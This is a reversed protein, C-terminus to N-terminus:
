NFILAMIIILILIAIIIGFIIYVTINTSKEQEKKYNSLIEMAKDKDKETNTRTNTVNDNTNNKFKIDKFVRSAEENSVNHTKLLSLLIRDNKVNTKTNLEQLAGSYNDYYYLLGDKGKVIQPKDDIYSALVSDNKASDQGYKKYYDKVINNYSKDMAMNVNNNTNNNVSHNDILKDIKIRRQNYNLTDNKFITNLTNKGNNLNNFTEKIVSSHRFMDILDTKTNPSIQEKIDKPLRDIITSLARNIKDNPKIEDNEALLIDIMDNVTLLLHEAKVNKIGSLILIGYNTILYDNKRIITHIISKIIEDQSTNKLLTNSNIENYIIHLTTFEDTDKQILSTNILNKVNFSYNYNM